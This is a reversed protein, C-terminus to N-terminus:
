SKRKKKKRKKKVKPQSSRQVKLQEMDDISMLMGQYLGVEELPYTDNLIKILEQYEQQNVLSLVLGPHGMRGTRGSRHVYTEKDCVRNYHIVCAVEPVDIGRSAMDTTLLFVTKGERFLTLAMKRETKNLDGHLVSIPIGHYLLKAAVQEIQQIQEFFIIGYMGDIHALQRLMDDKKRNTVELYVHQVTDLRDTVQIEKLSDTLQNAVQNLADSPTASIFLYVVDRLLRKTISSIVSSLTDNDGDLVLYDAEDFVVRQVTHVKLKRSQALVESFRGPTAIIIEPKAKLDDVQRNMNAGGIIMQVTLPTEQTWELAVDYIQKALEQSPAFVIAQLEKTAETKQIIPLLYALTKGTGTPSHAIISKGQMMPDFLAKQIPTMQEFNQQQWKKQLSHSLQNIM